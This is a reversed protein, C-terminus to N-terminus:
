RVLRIGSYQWQMHPHFFNRYTYRSHGQSTAMSNGRLVMQNIMFKGNYEGLAGPAIKFNPYPLYASNTWEWRKGWEFKSSAVEWEFETALRMKKWVAFANAEYFSVHCVISTPNLPKLGALTYYYWRDDKKQWYLPAQINEKQVWSWGEDLWYTFNQYGGANIFELYEQNTILAKAIEFNQLYTTHHGLENDYCFDNSNHGIQYIGEQIKVWGQDKNPVDAMNLKNDYIPSTRNLSLLYKLDTLLLEQHQQEHNIGVLMLPEIEKNDCSTLLNLISEDVHKRYEVIEEVSPRTINGRQARITREGITQYYSNFFFNFSEDFVKYNDLYKKLILEEFFWTVHAINWKVPSAFEIPQPMYDEINLPSCLDNTKKRTKRYLEIINQM